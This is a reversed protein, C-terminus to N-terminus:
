FPLSGDLDSEDIEEYAAASTATPATSSGVTKGKDGFYVKDAVIETVTRNEGNKDTWKRNQLHGEVIVM